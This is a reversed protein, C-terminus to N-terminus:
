IMSISTRYLRTKLSAQDPLAIEARHEHSFYGIRANHGWRIRGETHNVPDLLAKILTTKGVGNRGLIAVKDGRQV